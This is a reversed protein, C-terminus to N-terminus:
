IQTIKNSLITVPIYRSKDARDVTDNKNIKSTDVTEPSTKSKETKETDIKNKPPILFTNAEKIM